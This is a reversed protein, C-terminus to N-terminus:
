SPLAGLQSGRKAFLQFFKTGHLTEPCEPYALALTDVWSECYQSNPNKKASARCARQLINHIEQRLKRDKSVSEHMFRFKEM